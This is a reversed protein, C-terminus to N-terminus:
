KYASKPLYDYFIKYLKQLLYIIWISIFPYIILLILIFIRTIFKVNTEVFIISLIFIVVIFCYIFLFFFYYIKVRKLGEDEYYSKRGNTLADSSKIKLRKELDDNEQKYKKYLDFINDFNILIGQYSQINSVVIDVNKNFNTQFTNAISNAKNQLENEIYTNYGSEGQTYTIYNKAASFFKQPASVMNTEADLYTQKLQDAQKQSQCSPGCSISQNALKILNNFEDMNFNSLDPM